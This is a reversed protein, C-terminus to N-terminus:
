VQVGQRSGMASPSRPPDNANRQESIVNLAKHNPDDDDDDDDDEEEEEKTATRRRRRRRRMRMRMRMRMELAGRSTPGQLRPTVACWEWVILHHSTPAPERFSSIKAQELHPPRPVSWKREVPLNVM